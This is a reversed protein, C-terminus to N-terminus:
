NVIRDKEKLFFFVTVILLTILIFDLMDFLNIIPKWFPEKQEAGIMSLFVIEESIAQKVGESYAVAVISYTGKVQPIWNASWDAGTFSAELTEKTAGSIEFKVSDVVEAGSIVRVVLTVPVDEESIRYYSEFPQPSVWEIKVVAPPSEPVEPIVAVEIVDYQEYWESSYGTSPPNEVFCIGSWRGNYYTIAQAYVYYRQYPLGTLNWITRWERAYYYRGEGYHYRKIEEVQTSTRVQEITTVGPWGEAMSSPKTSYFFDVGLVPLVTGDEGIYIDPTYAVLEVAGSHSSGFEPQVIAVYSYQRHSGEVRPFPGIDAAEAPQVPIETAVGLTVSFTLPQTSSKLQHRVVLLVILVAIATLMLAEKRKRLRLYM